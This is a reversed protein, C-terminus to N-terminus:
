LIKYIQGYIIFNMNSRLVGSVMLATYLATAYWLFIICRFITKLRFCLLPSLTTKNHWLMPASPSVYLFSGSVPMELIVNRLSDMPIHIFDSFRCLSQVFYKFILYWETTECCTLQLNHNNRISAIHTRVTLRNVSFLISRKHIVELKDIVFM